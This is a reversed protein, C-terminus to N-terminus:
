SFYFSRPPFSIWLCICLIPILHRAILHISRLSSIVTLSPSALPIPVAVPPSKGGRLDEGCLKCFMTQTSYLHDSYDGSSDSDSNSNSNSCNSPYCPHENYFTCLRCVTGTSGDHPTDGDKSLIVADSELDLPASRKDEGTVAAAEFHISTPSTLESCSMQSAVARSSSSSLAIRADSVLLSTQQHQEESVEKLHVNGSENTLTMRDHFDSAADTTNTADTPTADATVTVVDTIADAADTTATVVDTTAATADAVAADAADTPAADTTATVVDTTAAAATSSATTAAAATTTTTTTTTTTVAAVTTASAVTPTPVTTATTTTFPAITATVVDTTADSAVTTTPVATAAADHSTTATSLSPCFSTAPLGVPRDALPSESKLFVTSSGSGSGSGSSGRSGGDASTRQPLSAAGKSKATETVLPPLPIANPLISPNPDEETRPAPALLSITDGGDADLPCIVTFLRCDLVIEFVDDPQVELPVKVM